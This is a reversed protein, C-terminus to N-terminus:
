RRERVLAKAKEELLEMLLPHDSLPGGYHFDVEAHLRRTQQIIRPIDDKVHRGSFVMLPLIFIQRAGHTICSELAEPIGPKAIELFAGEVRREPHSKRFHAVFDFFARNSEEEKSGHAILLYASKM